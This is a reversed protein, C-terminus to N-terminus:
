FPGNKFEQMRNLVVMGFGTHNQCAPLRSPMWTPGRQLLVHSSTDIGTFQGHPEAHEQRTAGRENEAAWQHGPTSGGSVHEGKWDWAPGWRLTWHAMFYNEQGPSGSHPEAHELRSARM